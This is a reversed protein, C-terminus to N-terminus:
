PALLPKLEAALQRSRLARGEATLHYHTDAFLGVDSQINLSDPDYVLPAIENLADATAQINAKTDDGPDGYVWPLALWLTGGKAEVEAHFQAIRDIAHRTAPKSIELQWWDGARDKDLTPDGNATLPDDYYGTLKGENVLDNASKIVGRLSPVGLLLLDQALQQPPIDGARPRGIAISFPGSRDGLGNDHHLILYEPILLVTDGPNVQELVSPLIVNLGVPGDIGLNVVPLGLEDELLASNLTYHAGSGGTVLLKPEDITAAIAVKKEYMSKLWRTEGGLHVNYVFGAAWALGAAAMWPLLKPM